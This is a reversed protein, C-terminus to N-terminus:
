DDKSDTKPTGDSNFALKLARETQIIPILLSFCQAFVFVLCVVSLVVEGAGIFPLHLLLSAPFSIIGLLTM